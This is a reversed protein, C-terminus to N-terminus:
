GITMLAPAAVMVMVIGLMLFMPLLLKASAEEGKRMAIDKRQHFATIMEEELYRKMDKGGTNVSTELLSALKIYCRLGIRRGFEGYAQVEPTGTEMQNLTTYMEEYVPHLRSDERKLSDQVQKKWALKAPYGAGMLILFRSVLEPYDLLLSEERKKRATEKESKEQFGLCAAAFVGLFILALHDLPLPSKYTLTRGEFEKPLAIESIDTNQLALESVAESFKEEMTKKEAFVTVPIEAQGKAVENFLKVHLFVTEGEETRKEGLIGMHSVLEPNESEWQVSLGYEPLTRVLNLNTRVESLSLNEELIERCLIEMIPKMNETLEEQSLSKEPVSVSIPVPSEAIGNVFFEYQREGGGSPNRKLVGDELGTDEAGFFIAALWFMAGLFICFFQKWLLSVNRKM